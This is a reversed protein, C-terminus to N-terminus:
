ALPLTGPCPSCFWNAIVVGLDRIDSINEGRLDQLDARARQPIYVKLGDKGQRRLGGNIGVNLPLFGVPRQGCNLRIHASRQRLAEQRRTSM